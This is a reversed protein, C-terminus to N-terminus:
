GRSLPPLKKPAPLDTDLWGAIVNEAANPPPYTPWEGGLDPGHYHWVTRHDTIVKDDPRIQPPIPDFGAPAHKPMFWGPEQKLVTTLKGRQTSTLFPRFDDKVSQDNRDYRRCGRSYWIEPDIGRSRLFETDM